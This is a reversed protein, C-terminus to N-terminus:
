RGHRVDPHRRRHGPPHVIRPRPGNRRRHLGRQRALVRGRGRRLRLLVRDHVARHRDVRRRGRSPGPPPQGRRAGPRGHDRQHARPEPPGAALGRQARPHHLRARRAPLRGPHHRQDLLVAMKNNVNQSTLEGLLTAGRPNMQFGIAPKGLQDRTEFARSVAWSADQQTMRKDRTDWCLMYYEGQYEEVVYGRSQFFAAPDAMLFDYEAKSDFWSEVQDIKLWRADRSRVNRPGKERLEARLRAEEPHTNSAEGGAQPDVTIRFSLVGAGSLLRKLDNPDDLSDRESVYTEYAAIVADIQGVLEPHEAKMSDLVRERQSPLAIPEEAGPERLLKRRTSLSLARRLEDPDLASSLAQNRAEEYDIESQAAQDALQDLVEDPQNALQAADIAARAARARDLSEAARRLLALRADEGASMKELLPAREAPDLRLVRELEDPAVSQGRLKSLEAEFAQRLDKVRPGPLPMTVEIRDNGQAVMSIEYLGNPDVREKLVEITKGIVEDASEQRDVQVSYVLTVGGRLDKGLRLKKAPPYASAALLLVVAVAFTANRIFIRMM